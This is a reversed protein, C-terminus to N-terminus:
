YLWYSFKAKEVVIHFQM